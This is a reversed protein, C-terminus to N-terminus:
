RSKQAFGRPVIFHEIYPAPSKIRTDYGIGQFECIFRNIRALERYISNRLAV